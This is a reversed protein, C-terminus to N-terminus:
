KMIVKYYHLFLYLIHVFKNFNQIIHFEDEEQVFYCLTIEEDAM